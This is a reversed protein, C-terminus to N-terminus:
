KLQPSKEDLALIFRSDRHFTATRFRPCGARSRLTAGGDFSAYPYTRIKGEVVVMATALMHRPDLPDVALHSEIHPYRAMDVSIHSSKVPEIGSSTSQALTASGGVVLMILVLHTRM